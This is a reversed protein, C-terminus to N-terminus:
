TSRSKRARQLRQPRYRCALMSTSQRWLHPAMVIILLVLMVDILSTLNIEHNQQFDDEDVSGSIDCAMARRRYLSRPYSADRAASPKMKRSLVSPVSRSATSIAAPLAICAQQLMPWAMPYVTISGTFVNYFVMATIAALLGVFSAALGIAAFGGACRSLRLGVQAQIRM